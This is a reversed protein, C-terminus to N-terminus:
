KFYTIELTPASLAIGDSKQDGDSSGHWLRLQYHSQGDQVQQQVTDTVDIQAHCSPSSIQTIKPGRIPYDGYDMEGYQLNFFALPGLGGDGYIQCDGLNLTASEITAGAPLASIDFTVFGEITADALNDGVKVSNQAYYHWVGGIDSLSGSMTPVFPASANELTAVIFQEAAKVSQGDWRLEFYDSSAGGPITVTLTRGDASTKKPMLKGNFYVTVQVPESLQLQVESGPLGKKPSFTFSLQPSAVNVTVKEETIGNEHEVRLVYTTTSGPCVQKSDHGAVGVGDLRVLTAHEVDWRLTTCDGATLNTSDARFDITVGPTPKPTPTDTPASPPPAAGPVVIQVYLISGFPKGEDSRMQWEGRYTGSTSPATLHVSMEATDGAATAPVAVAAQGGMRDGKVFVLDFASDWDCSSSNRVRWTKVFPTGPALQTNDPITVDAEYAANLKCGEGGPVDPVTTSTPVPETGVALTPAAGEGAATVQLVITAPESALGATDYVVVSVIVDGAKEPTWAQVVSFSAPNGSPPADSRVLLGSVSLEVRDVGASATAMSTVNVEKGVTVATGSPPSSITVSPAGAADPTDSSEPQSCALAALLLFVVALIVTCASRDKSM